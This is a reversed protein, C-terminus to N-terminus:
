DILYKVLYWHKLLLCCCLNLATGHQLTDVRSLAQWFESCLPDLFPLLSAVLHVGLHM